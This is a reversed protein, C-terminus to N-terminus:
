ARESKGLALRLRAKGTCAPYYGAAGVGGFQVYLVDASICLVFISVPATYRLPDDADGLWPVGTVTGLNLQLHSRRTSIMQEIDPKGGCAFMINRRLSPRSPDFASIAARLM